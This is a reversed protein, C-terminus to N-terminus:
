YEMINVKVYCWQEGLKIMYINKIKIRRNRKPSIWSSVQGAENFLGYTEEGSSTYSGKEDGVAGLRCM